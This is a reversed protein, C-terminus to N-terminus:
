ESFMLRKFLPDLPMAEPVISNTNVYVETANEALKHEEIFRCDREYDAETWGATERWIIVVSKHEVTGTYVLYRRDDDFLCRRTNVSLGLLYNFTEPLDVTQTQTQMDKIINLQYSFPHELNSINLFTPSERTEDELLYSLPHEHFLSNERENFEINNLADEYSEIRQYKIIHSLRSDRSVPKANRWKEAYVAKKVRPKLITNFYEEMEILLYKRKGKDKRNLNITAHANTGSGAFFDLIIGTGDPTVAWVLHEYLDISHCYEFKLGLAAIDNKGRRGSPIVSSLEGFLYDKLYIKLRPQKKENPGFVIRGEEQFKQLKEPTRSWGSAPVPCPKGTCPHILPIRFKPDNQQGPASLSVESYVDGNEDIKSYAREGGTLNPHHNIWIRFEKCCAETVGGHQRILSSAKKLIAKRNTPRINLKITGTSYCVIYEHQTAITNTGFVPNRKDWIITGQDNMQLTQFFLFLKEYENEDIHSFICSDSAMLQEALSIRDAMMSLWSSHQYTNKYLFGSTKTKPNYPPDIHICEISERYKETLLNLAQFNEGHILLGDTENDLDDFHALLRDKFNSDFHCTDLVLNPNEKLFDVSLPDTYTTDVLDGDIEDIHFLVKWENLQDTNEVIEAYFEQPVRDLTLCYDTSLVFKKKLWLRKQFEEIHSLFNIIQSAIANVLKATEIWGVQTLNDEQFHVDEFILSSLPMVENKMYVDLERNLFQKLDKHIFFDATNRRTYTRLHKKLTTVGETERSLESQVSYHERLCNIIKEEADDVIKDQQDRTGYNRKEADTLPRYEFPICVENQKCDTQASIPIFFRKAGQINDKEVDVDRLDFTVTIDQSEFRYDSFYASSKVYYQDRNAWHLYVEEGNYPVAYRDTQSYRRRPIFDGNEYYRSFFIYLHNFVADARQDQAPPTGVQEVTELYKQVLPTNRYTENILNGDADLVGDGFNQIIQEKLHEIEQRASEIEANQDLEANVIAPLEEDIFAQFQERKYNIIRYIGFKLEAADARFLECLLKQLKQLSESM